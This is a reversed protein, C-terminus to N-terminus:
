PGRPPGDWVVEGDVTIRVREVSGELHVLEAVPAGGEYLARVPGRGPPDVRGGPPVAVWVGEDDRWADPAVRDGLLASPTRLDLAARRAARGPPADTPLGVSPLTVELAGDRLLLPGVVVGGPGTVELDFVVRRRGDGAPTRERTEVVRAVSAPQAEGGDQVELPGESTGDVILTLPVRAGLFALEGALEATAVLPTAPLQALAPHDLVSVLDPDRRLGFPTVAGLRLAEVADAAAGERDGRRARLAAREAYGLGFRPQQRLAEDLLVLGADLDGAAAAARASWALLLADPSRAARAREFHARAEGPRGAALAAEGAEAERVAVGLPDLAPDSPGGCGLWSLLILAVM